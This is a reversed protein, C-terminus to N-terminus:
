QPLKIKVGLQFRKLISLVHWNQKNTLNRSLSGDCNDKNVHLIESPYHFGSINIGWFLYVLIRGLTEPIGEFPRVLISLHAEERQTLLTPQSPSYFM